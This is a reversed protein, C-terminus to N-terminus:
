QGVYGAITVIEKGLPGRSTKVQELITIRPVENYNYWGYRANQWTSPATCNIDSTRLVTSVAIDPLGPM